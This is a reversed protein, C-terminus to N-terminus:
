KLKHWFKAVAFHHQFQQNNNWLYQCNILTLEQTSLTITIGGITKTLSKLFTASFTKCSCSSFWFSRFTISISFYLYTRLHSCAKAFEVKIFTVKIEAWDLARRVRFLFTVFLSIIGTFPWKGSAWWLVYKMTSFISYINWEFLHYLIVFFQFWSKIFLTNM